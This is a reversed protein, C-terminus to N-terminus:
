HVSRAPARLGARMAWPHPLPCGPGLGRSGDTKSELRMQRAVGTKLFLRKDGEVGREHLVPGIDIYRTPAHDVHGDMEDEDGQWVPFGRHRMGTVQEHELLVRLRRHDLAVDTQSLIHIEGVRDGLADQALVSSGFVTLQLPLARTREM